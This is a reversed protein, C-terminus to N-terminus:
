RASQVVTEWLSINILTAQITQLQHGTTLVTDFGYVISSYNRSTMSLTTHMPLCTLLKVSPFIASVKFSPTRNPPPIRLLVCTGAQKCHQKFVNIKL